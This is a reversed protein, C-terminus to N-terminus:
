VGLTASIVAPETVNVKVAEAIKGQVVEAM